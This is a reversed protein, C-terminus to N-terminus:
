VRSLRLAIRGKRTSFSVANGVTIRYGPISFLSKLGSVSYKTAWWVFFSFVAVFWEFLLLLRNNFSEAEGM